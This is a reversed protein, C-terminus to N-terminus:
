GWRLVGPQVEKQYYGGIIGGRKPQNNHKDDDTPPWSLGRRSKIDIIKMTWITEWVIFCHGGVSEM